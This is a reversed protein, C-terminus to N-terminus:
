KESLGARNLDILTYRQHKGSEIPTVRFIISTINKHGVCIFLENFM